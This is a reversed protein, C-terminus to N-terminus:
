DQAVSEYRGMEVLEGVVVSALLLLAPDARVALFFNAVQATIYPNWDSLIYIYGAM